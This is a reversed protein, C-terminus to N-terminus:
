HANLVMECGEAVLKAAMGACPEQVGTSHMGWFVRKVRLLVM